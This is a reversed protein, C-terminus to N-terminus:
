ACSSSFDMLAVETCITVVAIESELLASLISNSAASPVSMSVAPLPMVGGAPADSGFLVDIIRVASLRQCFAVDKIFISGPMISRAVGPKQSAHVSGSGNGSGSGTMSVGVVVSGM